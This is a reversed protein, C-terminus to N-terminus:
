YYEYIMLPGELTENKEWSLIDVSFNVFEKAINASRWRQQFNFYILWETSCSDANLSRLQSFVINKEQMEIKMETEEKRKSPVKTQIEIPSGM